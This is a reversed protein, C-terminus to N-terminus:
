ENEGLNDLYLARALNGSRDVIGQDRSLKDPVRGVVCQLATADVVDATERLHSYFHLDLREDSGTLQCTKIEVLIISYDAPIDLKLAQRRFLQIPVTNQLNVLYTHQLQGYFTRLEFVSARNQRRAHIDVYMEFQVFTRDKLNQQNALAKSTSGCATMTDGAESDIRRIKSWEFYIADKLILDTLVNKQNGLNFRTALAGLVRAPVRDQQFQFCLSALSRPSNRVAHSPSPPM